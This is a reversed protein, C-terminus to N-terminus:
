PTRNMESPDFPNGMTEVKVGAPLKFLSADVPQDLVVETVVSETKSGPMKISQGMMTMTQGPVTVISKMPFQKADWVWEKVQSTINMVKNEYEKITCSKGNIIEAGITKANKRNEAGQKFADSNLLGSYMGKMMENMVMASNEKPNYLYQQSGDDIIIHTEGTGEDLTEIRMQRGSIWFKQSSKNVKGSGDDQTTNSTWQASDFSFGSQKMADVMNAPDASYAPAIYFLLMLCALAIKTFHKKM